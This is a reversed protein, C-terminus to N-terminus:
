RAEYGAGLWRWSASEIRASDQACRWLAEHRTRGDPLPYTLSRVAVHTFSAEFVASLSELTDFFQLHDHGEHGLTESGVFVGGVALAAAIKACMMETTERAFHGIAGDWVVVDYPPDPFPERVADLAVYRVQPHRSHRRAHRIAEADVDVAVVEAGRPAFLRSAFFGDGCGVDLVRDGPRILEAAVFGRTLAFPHRRGELLDFAGHRHDYFHPKSESLDWQRRRLSDYHARLAARLRRERREGGYLVRERVIPWQVRAKARLVLAPHAARRLLQLLRTM